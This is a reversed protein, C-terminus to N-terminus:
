RFNMRIILRMWMNCAPRIKKKMHPFHLLSRAQGRGERKYLSGHYLVYAPFNNIFDEEDGAGVAINIYSVPM